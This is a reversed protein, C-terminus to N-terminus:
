AGDLHDTQNFSLLAPAPELVLESLACNAKHYEQWDRADSDLLTALALALAAGHGVAVVDEGPHARSIRALAELMRGSVQNPSEGGPPAYDPDERIREFFGHRTFLARYSIGELEGVGYEMLDREVRTPLALASGIAAATDRARALPSSYVAAIGPRTRALHAGVLRAQVHGQETLASDTWGHWVRTRNAEIEGHRVLLLRAGSM